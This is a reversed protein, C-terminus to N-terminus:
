ARRGLLGKKAAVAAAGAVVALLGLLGAAPAATDVNVGTPKIVGSSQASDGAGPVDFTKGESLKVIVNGNPDTATIDIIITDASIRADVKVPYGAAAPDSNIVDATKQALGSIASARSYASGGQRAIEGAQEINAVVQDVTSDSLDVVDLYAQAEDTYAGAGNQNLADIIAQDQAAFTPVALAAAIGLACVISRTEENTRGGSLAQNQGTCLPAGPGRHTNYCGTICKPFVVFKAM